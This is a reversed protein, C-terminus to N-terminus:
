RGRKEKEAVKCKARVCMFLSAYKSVNEPALPSM